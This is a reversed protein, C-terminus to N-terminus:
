SLPTRRAVVYLRPTPYESPYPRREYREVVTLGASEVLRTLEDSDVLTVRVSVERGFWEDVGTEGVGAHMALLLTGDPALVRALEAFAVPLEARPLHIASYFAIVGALAGDAAPIARLDGIRFDMNPNRRRAEAVSVPSVDVGVIRVGRDVLYRTVHGAPGCGVDFVPGDVRAAFEDLLARDFPKNALEGAFADAYETAVADYTARIDPWTM